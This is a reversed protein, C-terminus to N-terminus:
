KKEHQSSMTSFFGPIKQLVIKEMFALPIERKSFQHHLHHYEPHLQCISYCRLTRNAHLVDSTYIDSFFDSKVFMNDKLTLDQIRNVTASNQFINGLPFMANIEAIPITPSLGLAFFVDEITRLHGLEVLEYDKIYPLFSKAEAYTRYKQCEEYTRMYHINNMAIWKDDVPRLVTKSIRDPLVTISGKIKDVILPNLGFMDFHPTSSVLTYGEMHELDFSVHSAVETQLARSLVVSNYDAALSEDYLRREKFLWEPLSPLMSALSSVQGAKIRSSHNDWIVATILHDRYYDADIRNPNNASVPDLNKFRDGLRVLIDAELRNHLFYDFTVDSLRMSAPINFSAEEMETFVPVSEVSSVFERQYAVSPLLTPNGQLFELAIEKRTQRSPKPDPYNSFHYYCLGSLANYTSWFTSLSMNLGLMARSALRSAVPPVKSLAIAQDMASNYQPFATPENLGRLIKSKWIFQFLRHWASMGDPTILSSVDHKGIEASLISQFSTEDYTFSSGFNSLSVNQRIALRMYLLYYFLDEYKGAFPTENITIDFTSTSRTTPDQHRQITLFNSMGIDVNYLEAYDFFRLSYNSNTTQSLAAHNGILTNLTRKAHATSIIDSAIEPTTSNELLKATVLWSSFDTSLNSLNVMNLVSAADSSSHFEMSIRSVITTLEEINKPLIRSLALSVPKDSAQSAEMLNSWASFEDSSILTAIYNKTKVYTADDLSETTPQNISDGFMTRNIGYKEAYHQLLRKVLPISQLAMLEDQTRFTSTGELSKPQWGQSAWNVSLLLNDSVSAVIESVPRVLKCFSRGMPQNTIVQNPM